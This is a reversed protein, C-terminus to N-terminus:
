FCGEKEGFIISERGQETQGPFGIIILCLLIRWMIGLPLETQRAGTKEKQLM